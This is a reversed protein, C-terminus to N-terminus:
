KLKFINIIILVNRKFIFKFKTNDFQLYLQNLMLKM